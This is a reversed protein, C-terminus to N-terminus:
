FFGIPFYQLYLDTYIGKAAVSALAYDLARRLRTNGKAVAIGVGEGFFRADIFPGGRFVCCNQSDRGYLWRSLSLGDGFLADIEGKRLAEHLAERSPYPKRIVDAFFTALYAEHATKEEVGITKGRLGEPTPDAPPAGALTAFRGPTLYYPTTFDLRERTGADIRISAILADGQGNELSEILTDFRRAQITCAIELQECIARALDVDFGTLTGDPLAFHFPPYDDGTLFRIARLDSLDPEAIRRHPDWLSPVFGDPAAAPSSGGLLALLVASVPSVAALVNRARRFWAITTDALPLVEHWRSISVGNLGNSVHKSGISDSPTSRSLSKYKLLM